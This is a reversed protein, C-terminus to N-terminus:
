DWIPTKKLLFSKIGIKKNKSDLLKYFEKREKQLAGKSNEELNVLKKIIQLSKKPKSSIKKLFEVIFDNFNEKPVIQSVIGFKMATEADIIDGSMALYKVNQNSTFKKTKQTGGIGPILGLNIEPLGFKADDSGIILDSSLALEFGGGLAYGDVFAIIPIDIDKLKDIKSFLKQKKAQKSNLKDLEKIDAGPSFFKSGGTLGICKIERTKNLYKTAYAIENLTKEDLSNNKNNAIQIIAYNERKELKINKYNM